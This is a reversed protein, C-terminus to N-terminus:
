AVNDHQNANPHSLVMRSSRSRGGAASMGSTDGPVVHEPDEPICEREEPHPHSMGWHSSLLEQRSGALDSRQAGRPDVYVPSMAVNDHQNENPHALVMRSSRSRGGAASMGSTDGPVVHEPDEPICEREEPHPHSM